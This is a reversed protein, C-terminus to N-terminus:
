RDVVMMTAAMTAVLVESDGTIAFTRGETFVLNRGAKVARGEFRYHEGRAPRLFSTKLEATTVSRDAAQLTVAASACATDMGATVAGGHLAGGGETFRADHPMEVDIEGPAVHALRMGMTRMLAQRAHSARTRAEFDPDRPEFASM